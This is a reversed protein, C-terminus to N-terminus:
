SREPAAEKGYRGQCRAFGQYIEKSDGSPVNLIVCLTLIARRVENRKQNIKDQKEEEAHRVKSKAILAEHAAQLEEKTRPAKEKRAKLSTHGSKEAHEIADDQTGFNEGCDNCSFSNLQGLEASAASVANAKSESEM